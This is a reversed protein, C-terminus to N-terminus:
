EFAVKNGSEVIRKLNGVETEGEKRMSRVIFPGVLPYLGNLKLDLTLNVKTRGEANELAFTERSGSMMHPFTVEMTSKRGPEYEMVRFVIQNPRGSNKVQLTSGVGLPGESTLKGELLGPIWQPLKTVDTMFRWVEDSPREITTSAEIKAM